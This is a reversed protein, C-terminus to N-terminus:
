HLHTYQADTMDAINPKQAKKILQLLAPSALKLKKAATLKLVPIESNLKGDLSTANLTYLILLFCRVCQWSLSKHMMKYLMSSVSQPPPLTM